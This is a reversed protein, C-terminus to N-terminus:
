SIGARLESQVMALFHNLLTRKPSIFLGVTASGEEELTDSSGKRMMKIRKTMADVKQMLASKTRKGKEDGKRV